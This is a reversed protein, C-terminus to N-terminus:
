ARVGDTSGTGTGAITSVAGTTIVVKRIKHNGTDAVYLNTGDTAIGFPWTFRAAAGTNDAFGASGATGALTSVAGTAIVIKRITHNDTDTVYLNAGDTTIGTPKNFRAAAGTNDTAGTSGATGALTGVSGTMGGGGGDGGGGGCAAIFLAIAAVVVAPYGARRMQNRGM